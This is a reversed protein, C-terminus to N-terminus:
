FDQPPFPRQPCRRQVHGAVGCKLCVPRGQADWQYAPASTSPRHGRGQPAQETGHSSMRPARPAPSIGRFSSQTRLEGLLNASLAKVQEMIEKRMEGMLEVQLETRIQGKLEEMDVATTSRTPMTVRQSLIAPEGDQLEQELAQAEKCADTFTLRQNRRLQRSLEQKVPGPRLGVMLQDLLLDQDEETGERDQEQWRFFVERLRLIFGSVSEELRQKCNFFGARLQAKTAPAAYLKQLIGLVKDGTNKERPPILQLERKADGELAALVFDAQQQQGLGQARLMAEVQVRWEVFKTKKGDFKPIWAAGMFWPMTFQATVTPSASSQAADM